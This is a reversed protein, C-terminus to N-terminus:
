KYGKELMVDPASWLVGAGKYLVGSPCVEQIGVMQDVSNKEVVLFTRRPMNALWVCMDLKVDDFKMVSGGFLGDQYDMSTSIHSCTLM